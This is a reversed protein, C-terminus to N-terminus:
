IRCPMVSMWAKGGNFYIRVPGHAAHFEFRAYPKGYAKAIKAADAMYSLDFGIEEVAEKGQHYAAARQWDPYRGDLLDFPLVMVSNGFKDIFEATKNEFKLVVRDFRTPGKGKM